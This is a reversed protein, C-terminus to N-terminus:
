KSIFLTVIVGVAILVVSGIIVTLVSEGGAYQKKARLLMDEPIYFRVNEYSRNGSKGDTPEGDPNITLIIKKLSSSSKYLSIATTNGEQGLESLTKATDESTASSDIISSVFAGVIKKNCFIIIFAIIVGAILMWVIFPLSFNNIRANASLVSGM